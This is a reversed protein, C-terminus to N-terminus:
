GAETGAERGRGADGGPCRARQSGGLRRGAQGREAARLAEGKGAGPGGPPPHISCGPAGGVGGGGGGAQGGEEGEERGGERGTGEERRRTGGGGLLLFM